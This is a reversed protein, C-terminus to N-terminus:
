LMLMCCAVALVQATTLSLIGAVDQVLDTGRVDPLAPLGRPAVGRLYDPTLAAATWNAHLMGDM